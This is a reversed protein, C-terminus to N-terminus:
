SALTHKAPAAIPSADLLIEKSEILQRLAQELTRLFRSENEIIDRVDKPRLYFINSAGGQQTHLVAKQIEMNFQSFVKTLIMFTGMLDHTEIKVSHGIIKVKLKVDKIKSQESSAPLSRGKFVQSLPEQDVCIRKLDDRVQRQLFFIDAYDIPDGTSGVVKFVDFIHDRLTHIHAEVINLRNFALIASFNYLLSPRDKSCIILESAQTSKFILGSAFQEKSQCFENYIELHLQMDRPLRVMKLFDAKVSRPVGQRKKHHLTYQYFMKLQEIQSSSMKMKTGGRDSYTLLLLMKLREIDHNVLDWIMEYTEDEEPDLLLLDYMMLHKEVLFAIDKARRSNKTYGLNELIGPVLRAGVLEENQGPARVGKGIDHLLVSLKLTTKDRLSHYLDSLFPDASEDIELGNLVDLASLVHIDTPLHHVYIDQLLGCLNKFEPIYFNGLLGFEHLLRLSKAFYKGNIVRKFYSQVERQDERDIFIPCMQDIHHEIARVIPYSLFYNKESMWAFIKFVSEPHQSFLVEPEKDLIIQNQSNVAFHRSLNKVKRTDPTMSEWFLNRSYRKLPYAAQYFYQHFFEKVGHGMSQAIKERVEYSMVDRHSGKQLCHLLLRVKSLFAFASQMNKFAPASLFEQKFLEDLLEFQNTKDLNHKLRVLALAWYLRNLEEKVNPEQQFVTNSVDYYNKHDYCHNLLNDKQLLSVTKVTSMFESYVMRNGAVLRSELLSFLDTLKGTTLEKELSDNETYCSSTSTQFIDQHIFLYELHKVIQEAEEAEEDTLTSKSVLQVDVDSRFYIEERGYGGRAIVAIPVDKAQLQKPQTHNYLWVAASFAAQLITDVLVTNNLLLLHCNDTHALSDKLRQTETNVLPAIRNKFELYFKQPDTTKPDPFDEPRVLNAVHGQLDSRYKESITRNSQHFESM